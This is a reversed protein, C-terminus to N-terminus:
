YVGKSFYVNWEPVKVLNLPVTAFMSGDAEATGTQISKQVEKEETAEPQRLWYALSQTTSLHHPQAKRKMFEGCEVSEGAMTQRDRGGDGWKEVGIHFSCDRRVEEGSEAKDKITEKCDAWM